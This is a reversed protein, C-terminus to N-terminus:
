FLIFAVKSSVESIKELGLSKDETTKITSGATVSSGNQTNTMRGERANQSKSQHGHLKRSSGLKRRRQGSAESMADHKSPTSPTAPFDSPSLRHETETVQGCTLPREEFTQHSLPKLQSESTHIYEMTEFVQESQSDKAQLKVAQACRVDAAAETAEDVVEQKPHSDEEKRQAGLHRRTSGMKRRRNASNLNSSANKMESNENHAEENTDNPNQIDLQPDRHEEGVGGRLDSQGTELDLDASTLAQGQILNISESRGEDDQTSQICQVTNAENTEQQEKLLPNLSPEADKNQSVEATAIVKEFGKVDAQTNFDGKKMEDKNDTGDAPTRDINEMPGFPTTGTKGHATSFQESDTVKTLAESNEEVEDQGSVHGDKSGSVETDRVTEVADSTRRMNIKQGLSGKEQSSAEEQQLTELTVSRAAANDRQLINQIDIDDEPSQVSDMKLTVHGTLPSLNEPEKIYSKEQVSVDEDSKVSDEKGSCSAIDTKVTKSNDMVNQSLGTDDEPMKKTDEADTASSRIEQAQKLDLNTHEKLEAQTTSAIALTEEAQDGGTKEVFAEKDTETVSEKVNQQGKIRRSSGLKRRKGIPNNTDNKQPQTQIESQLNQPPSNSTEQHVPQDASPKIDDHEQGETEYVQGPATDVTESGSIQLDNTNYSYYDENKHDLVEFNNKNTPQLAQQVDLDSDEQKTAPDNKSKLTSWESQDSDTIEAGDQNGSMMESNQTAEHTVSESSHIMEHMQTPKIEQGYVDSHHSGRVDQSQLSDSKAAEEMTAGVLNDSVEVKFDEAREDHAEQLNERKNFSELDAKAYTKTPNQDESSIGALVAAYLLSDDTVPLIIECEQDIEELVTRGIAAVCQTTELAKDERTSRAVVEDDEPYSEAFSEKMEHLGKSNQSIFSTETEEEIKMSNDKPQCDLSESKEVSSFDEHPMEHVNNPEVDHAYVSNVVDELQHAEKTESLNLIENEEEKTSQEKQPPSVTAPEVSCEDERPERPGHEESSIELTVSSINVSKLHSESTNHKRQLPGNQNLLETDENGDKSEKETVSFVNPLEEPMETPNSKAILQQGVTLHSTTLESIGVLMGAHTDEKEEENQATSFTDRVDLISEMTKEEVATKVTSSLETTEPPEDISASGAGEETPNHYSEVTKLLQRGKNRRSSGLKRRSLDSYIRQPQLDFNAHRGSQLTQSLSNSVEMESVEETEQHVSQKASPKTDGEVQSETEPATDVREFSSIQLKNADYTDYCVKTHDSVELNSEKPPYADQKDDVNSVEQKPASNNSKVILEHEYTDTIESQDPSATIIEFNEKTESHSIEYHDNQKKDKPLEEQPSSLMAQESSYEVETNVRPRSDDTTMGQTAYFQSVKEKPESLLYDRQLNGNQRLLETAKDRENGEKDTVSCFNPVEKESIDVSKSKDPPQPKVSPCALVSLSNLDSIGVLHMTEKFDEIQSPDSKEMRGMMTEMLDSSDSVERCDGDNEAEGAPCNESRPNLSDAEQRNTTAANQVDFYYDSTSPLYLSSDPRMSMDHEYGQSLEEQRQPQIALSLQIEKSTEYGATKEEVDEKFEHYSETAVNKVQEGKNRRRSGLKRRSKGLEPSIPNKTESQPSHPNGSVNLEETNEEPMDHQATIHFEDAESAKYQNRGLRHSGIRKKKANHASM